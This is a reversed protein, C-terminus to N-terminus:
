YFLKTKIPIRMQVAKLFQIVKKFAQNSFIELIKFGPSVLCSWHRISGKGKGMRVEIPKSTVPINPSMNLWVKGQQKLNRSLILQISKIQYSSIYGYEVAKLSLQGFNLFFTLSKWNKFKKKHMKYHKIKKPQMIKFYDTQKALFSKLHM